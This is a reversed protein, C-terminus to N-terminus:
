TRGCTLGERLLCRRMRKRATDYERKSIGLQTRIQDATWGAALADIIRLATADEAFLQRIRALEEAAILAREPGAAPDLLEFRAHREGHRARRIHDARLSRMVGALFAVMPVAEPRLRKGTLMRTIAEQLLDDWAVDPPLGRAYLRAISKLRLLDMRTILDLALATQTPTIDRHDSLQPIWRWPTPV